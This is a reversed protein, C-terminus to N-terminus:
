QVVDELSRDHLKLARAMGQVRRGCKHFAMPSSGIKRDVTLRQHHLEFQVSFVKRSRKPRDRLTMGDLWSFVPRPTPSNPVSAAVYGCFVDAGAPFITGCQRM